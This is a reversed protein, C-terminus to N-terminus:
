EPLSLAGTNPDYSLSEMSGLFSADNVLTLASKSKEKDERFGKVVVGLIKSKPLTGDSNVVAELLAAELEARLESDDNSAKVAATPKATTTTSTVSTASTKKTTTAGTKKIGGSVKPAETIDTLVLIEPTRNSDGEQKVIGSGRREKQPIRMWHGHIGVLFSIDPTINNPDYGADILCEIFHAWNSANRLATGKGVPVVFPGIVPEMQELISDLNNTDVNIAEWGEVDVPTEGDKSPHFDNLSTKGMSWANWFPEDVEQGPDPIIRAFAALTYFDKNGYNWPGVFAQEVTGDFDNQLGGSIMEDPKFGVAPM